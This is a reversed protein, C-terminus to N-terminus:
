VIYMCENQPRVKRKSPDMCPQTYRYGLQVQDWTDVQAGDSDDALFNLFTLIKALNVQTGETLLKEPNQVSKFIDSVFSSTKFMNNEVDLVVGVRHCPIASLGKCLSVMARKFTVRLPPSLSFLPLASWLCRELYRFPMFSSFFFHVPSSLMSPVLSEYCRIGHSRFLVHLPLSLFEPSKSTDEHTYERASFKHRVLPLSPSTQM